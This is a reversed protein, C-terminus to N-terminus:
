IGVLEVNAAAKRVKEIIKSSVKEFKADKNKSIKDAKRASTPFKDRELVFLQGNASQVSLTGKAPSLILRKVNGYYLIVEGCLLYRPGLKLQKGASFYAVLPLLLLAAGLPFIFMSVVMAVTLSVYIFRLRASSLEARATHQYKFIAFETPTM